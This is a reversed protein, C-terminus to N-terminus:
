NDILIDYISEYVQSAKNRWNKYIDEATAKSDSNLRIEMITPYSEIKLIITYTGDENKIYDSIYEQFKKYHGRNKRIYDNIKDRLSLAIKTYFYSLCLRGDATITYTPQNNILDQEVIFGAELLSNVTAACDMYPVWDNDVSCMQLLTDKTIPVEMKDFVFLLILRFQMTIDVRM